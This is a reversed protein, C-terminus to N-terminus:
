CKIPSCLCEYHDGLVQVKQIFKHNWTKKSMQGSSQSYHMPSWQGPSARPPFYGRGESDLVMSVPVALSNVELSVEHGSRPLWIDKKGPTSLLCVQCDDKWWKKGFQVSFPSARFEGDEGIVAVIDNSGPFLSILHWIIPVRNNGPFLSLIAFMFFCIGTLFNNDAFTVQSMSTKILFFTLLSISAM